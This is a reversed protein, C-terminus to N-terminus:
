FLFFTELKCKIWNHVVIVCETEFLFDLSEIGRRSCSSQVSPEVVILKLSRVAQQNYHPKAYDHHLINKKKKLM